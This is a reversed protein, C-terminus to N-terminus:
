FSIISWQLDVLDAVHKSCVKEVDEDMLGSLKALPCRDVPVPIRFLFKEIIM